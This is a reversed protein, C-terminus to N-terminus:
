EFVGSVEVTLGPHAEIWQRALALAAEHGWVESRAFANGSSTRAIVRMLPTM